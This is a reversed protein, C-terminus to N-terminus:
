RVRVPEAEVVDDAETLQRRTATVIVVDVGDVRERRGDLPVMADTVQVAYGTRLRQVGVYRVTPVASGGVGPIPYSKGMAQEAARRFRDAEVETAFIAHEAAM